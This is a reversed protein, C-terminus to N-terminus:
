IILDVRSFIVTLAETARINFLDGNRIRLGFEYGTNSDLQQKNNFAVWNAGSDLTYEVVSVTDIAFNILIQRSLNLPIKTDICDVTFWEQNASKVGPGTGDDLVPLGSAILNYSM